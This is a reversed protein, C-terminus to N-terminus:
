AGFINNEASFITQKDGFSTKENVKSALLRVNILINITGASFIRKPKM